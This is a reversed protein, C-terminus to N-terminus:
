SLPAGVPKACDHGPQGHAPNLKQTISPKEAVPQPATPTANDPAPQPTTAIKQALPAGVPLACDHGPQGHEPNTLLGRQNATTASPAPLGDQNAAQTENTNKSSCAVLTAAAVLALVIKRM